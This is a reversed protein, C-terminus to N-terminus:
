GGKWGGGGVSISQHYCSVPMSYFFLGMLALLLFIVLFKVICMKYNNWLMYRLSKLPNMFWVFSTDPRSFLLMLIFNLTLYRFLTFDQGSRAVRYVYKPKPLPEPEERGKGAPKKEAEEETLLEFEAELKGQTPLM